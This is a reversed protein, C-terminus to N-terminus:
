ESELHVHAFASSVWFAVKLQDSKFVLRMWSRLFLQSNDRVTHEVFQVIPLVLAGRNM